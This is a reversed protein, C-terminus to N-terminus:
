YVLTNQKYFKEGHGPTNIIIVETKKFQRAFMSYNSAHTIAGILIIVTNYKPSRVVKKLCIVKKNNITLEIKKMKDKALTNM